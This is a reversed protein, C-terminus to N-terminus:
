EIKALNIIRRGLKRAYNVAQYAGGSTRNIYCIVLDAAEAMYRNRYTIAFRKPKDEIEPYITLDYDHSSVALKGYGESIYPTVFILRSRPHNSKYKKCVRYALADFNGYNGLLFDTQSDRGESKDGVEAEITSLLRDEWEKGCPFSSHGFFSIIM